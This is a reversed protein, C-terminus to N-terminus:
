VCGASTSQAGSADYLALDLDGLAHNFDIRLADGAVAESGLTFHFWDSDDEGISLDTVM